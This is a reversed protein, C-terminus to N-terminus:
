RALRATVSALSDRAEQSGPTRRVQRQYCARARELDGLAQAVQGRRLDIGGQYGLVSREQEFWRLAERPRGQQLAIIGLKERATPTRSEIRLVEELQRRADDWRGEFMAINALLGLADTHYPSGAVERQLEREARRRLLSDRTTAQGFATLGSEDTPILTYASDAALRAFPGHRRVFVYGADDGFVRVWSTDHDVFALLSDGSAGVRRLMIYDFGYDQQLRRWATRRFESTVYLHRLERSGEQHIGMFPLQDRRPWFRFCLYGGSGFENFLHGHLDNRQIFDAAGIPVLRGPLRIRVAGALHPLGVLLCLAAGLGGRVWPNAGWAPLRVRRAWEDLDRALYVAAVLAYVGIFRQAVLLMASFAGCTMVEVRDLGGRRLRLLALVPWLVLILPLGSWLHQSLRLPGMEDIAQYILENRWVLWFEFPQWLTRWGSPNVFSIAAAALGTLWLERVPPAGTRRPPLHASLVHIGLVLFFLYYSIHTNAWIWAILVVWALNVRSGHRRSELLWIEAALLVAALTEPRVQSRSRYIIACAAIVVLPLLGKAGMRRAAAWVLGFVALTSLWRWAYLGLVGGLKWFPWVLAEFGWAYNVEKAGYTPWTWLQTLPFRHQEWVYRGVTLHQWQDPDFADHTVSLVVIAACALAAFLLAPHTLRIPPAAPVAPRESHSPGAPAPRPAPRTRNRSM